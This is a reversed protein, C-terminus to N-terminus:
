RRLLPELSRFVYDAVLKNGKATPHIGDAQMAGPLAIVTELLFPILPARYKTATATYMREFERIYEAGYNPPLTIGAILLKAGAKTFAAAMLDLNEKSQKLPLGRLGDNGGLELIVIAPKLDVAAQIRFRGGTTTDGSIGQNVVRYQYGKQDLLKQLFDPFSEGSNAGYGASLSDGFAVIVPRPDVAPPATTPTPTATVPSAASPSTSRNPTEPQTCSLIVLLPLALLLRQFISLM